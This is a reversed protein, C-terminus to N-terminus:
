ISDNEQTWMNRLPKMFLSKRREKHSLRLAEEVLKDDLVVNTRM